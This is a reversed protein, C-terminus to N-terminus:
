RFSFASHESCLRQFIATDEQDSLRRLPYGCLIEVEHTKIIENLLQEVRLAEEAKGEAVLLPACEGCAAVCPAAGKAAKEAPAICSTVVELFRHRDLQGNVMFRAVTAAADFTIYRRQDVAARIDLGGSQLKRFIGDRHSESAIVVASNEAKLAAAVFHAFSDIFRSDDSYFQIEHGRATETKGPLAQAPAFDEAGVPIGKLRSSVFLKGQLVTKVARVLETASSAKLVYGSAGTAMAEQVYALEDHASVFIIRCKPAFKLILRATEIGNLKQLGIELLILDPKLELAKQVAELGDLAEAIVYWGPKRQLLSSAFRRWPAFGDALLIRM